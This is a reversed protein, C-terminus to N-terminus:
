PNNQLLPLVLKEAAQIYYDYNLDGDFEKMRNCTKVNWEKDIGIEREDEKDPLPPMIKILKGGDKAVYYRCINQEPKDTVNGEDDITRLVLRSSRPVKTRLMFDMKENHNIIFDEITGKGLLAHEAAMPVVLASQNQHWGLGEFQYAGNRKVKGDDKYVALYNNVDRIAMMSYDVGELELKTVEEWWRCIESVRDKDEHRHRVTLGDTNVQVMTLDDIELLKEALMCLSIQGNITIAMTFKPDYFPSFKDNSSGYTGNLALKMVANEASGKPYKKRDQYVTEYIDCFTEGLHEPFVRNKIALNPYYSAVDEDRIVFEDDSRIVTSDVSGHIGGVGFDYRFGNIVVNLTEAVNWCWYHSVKGSKLQRDEVWSKPIKKQLSEILDDTIEENIKKRKTVMQAYKAVDGIEHEYLDTLVGKTETITKNRFWELIAKFEPRTFEVYPFIVEGINIKNRKTQRVRKRGGSGSYCCGKKHEELKLIFYDKGIKTDNHNTLDIGMQDSLKERFDIASKSEKYFLFTQLMDHKNYKLVIDKQADTLVTGPSFPLDEIDDSRMNFELMKLSTSKAKNDFHHIKFLDMQPILWESQRVTNAFRDDTSFSDIINQAKEYIDDITCTQNKLFYHLVPYDFAINNYGVMRGNNRKVYRLFELLVKRDDKRDSIEFSWCKRDTSRGVVMSFFNPYTEIDYVYDVYKQM